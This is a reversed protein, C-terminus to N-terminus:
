ISSIKLIHRKSLIPKNNNFNNFNDQRKKRRRKNWNRKYLKVLLMWYAYIHKLLISDAIFEEFEMTEVKNEEKLEKNKNDM